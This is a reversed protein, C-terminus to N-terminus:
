TGAPSADAEFKLSKAFKILSSFSRVFDVMSANDDHSSEAMRSRRARVELPTKTINEPRISSFLLSDVHLIYGPSFHLVIIFLIYLIWKPQCIVASRQAGPARAAEGDSEAAFMLM